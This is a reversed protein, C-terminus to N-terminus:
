AYSLPRNYCSSAAAHYGQPYPTLIYDPKM